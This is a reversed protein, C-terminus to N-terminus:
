LFIAVGFRPIDDFLCVFWALGLQTHCSKVEKAEVKEMTTTTTKAGFATSFDSIRL